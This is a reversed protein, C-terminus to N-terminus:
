QIKGIMWVNTHTFMKKCCYFLSILTINNTFDTHIQLDKKLFKMLIENTNLM